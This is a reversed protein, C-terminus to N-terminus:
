SSSELEALLEGVGEVLAFVTAIDADELASDVGYIEVLGWNKGRSRLPAMLLSDYGLRALLATEAADAEPDARLVIRPSGAEILKQTLPYDSLLFLELPRQSDAREHDSLEVILDGIVKSIVARQADLLEVLQTSAAGLLRSVTTETKIRELAREVEAM